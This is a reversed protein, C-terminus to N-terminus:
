KQPTPGSAKNLAVIIAGLAIVLAPLFKLLDSQDKREQNRREYYDRDANRRREQEQEFAAREAKLIREREDLQEQRIRNAHSREDNERQRIANLEDLEAKREVLSREADLKVNQVEAALVKNQHELEALREKRSLDSNGFHIAEQRTSFIGYDQRAEEETVKFQELVFRGPKRYDEVVQTVYIGPNRRLDKVPVIRRIQGGFNVFREGIMDANDVVEMKFLFMNEDYKISHDSEDLEGEAAEQSLPHAPCDQASLISFVYGLQRHYFSANHRKFEDLSIVYEMSVVVRGSLNRRQNMFSERFLKAENSPEEGLLALTQDLQLRNHNAIRYEVQVRFSNRSVDLTPPIVVRLGARDVTVVPVQLNNVFGVSVEYDATMRGTGPTIFVLDARTDILRLGDTQNDKIM